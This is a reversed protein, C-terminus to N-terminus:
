SARSCAPPETQFHTPDFGLTLLSCSLGSGRALARDINLALLLDDLSAYNSCFAGRTFGAHECTEAITARRVGGAAFVDLAADLLPRHTRAWRASEVTAVRAPEASSFWFRLAGWHIPYM